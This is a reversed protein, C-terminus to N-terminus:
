TFTYLQRAKALRIVMNQVSVPSPGLIPQAFFQLFIGDRHPQFIANEVLLELTFHLMENLVNDRLVACILTFLYV